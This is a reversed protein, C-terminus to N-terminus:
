YLDFIFSEFDIDIYSFENLLGLCEVNFLSYYEYGPEFYIYGDAAPMIREFDNYAPAETVPPEIPQTDPDTTDGPTETAPATAKPHEYYYVGYGVAVGIGGLMIVIALMIAIAKLGKM